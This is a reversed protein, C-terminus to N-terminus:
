RIKGRILLIFITMAMLLFLLEFGPTEGAKKETVTFSGDESNASIENADVDYVELTEIRIPTDGTKNIVEFSIKAIEGDGNIGSQDAIAISLIGSTTSDSSIMGKNLDGKDVDKVKLITPDYTVTLDMSGINEANKVHIPIQVTEGQSGSSEPIQIELQEATAITTLSLTFFFLMSIIIKKNKIKM